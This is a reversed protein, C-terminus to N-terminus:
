YKNLVKAAHFGFPLLANCLKKLFVKALDDLGVEPMNRMARHHRHGFNIYRRIQSRRFNVEAQKGSGIFLFQQIVDNMMGSLDPTFQTVLDPM